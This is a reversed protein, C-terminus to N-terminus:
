ISNIVGGHGVSIKLENVDDDDDENVPTSTNCFATGSKQVM